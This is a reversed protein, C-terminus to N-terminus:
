KSSNCASNFETEFKAILGPVENIMSQPARVTVARIGGPAPVVDFEEAQWMPNLPKPLYPRLLGAAQDSGLCKLPFTRVVVPPPPTLLRETEPVIVKAVLLSLVILILALLPAGFMMRARRYVRKRQAISSIDFSSSTSRQADLQAGLESHSALMALASSRCNVCARLHNAEETRQSDPDSELLASRIEDLGTSSIMALTEACSM